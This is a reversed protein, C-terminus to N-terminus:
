HLTHQCLLKPRLKGLKSATKWAQGKQLTNIEKSDAFPYDVNNNSMYMELYTFMPINIRNQEMTKYWEERFKHRFKTTLKTSFFWDRKLKHKSLHLEKNLFEKDIIMM